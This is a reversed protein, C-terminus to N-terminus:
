TPPACRVLSIADEFPGDTITLSDGSGPGTLTLVLRGSRSPRDASGCFSNASYGAPTADPGVIDCSVGAPSQMHVATLLWPKAACDEARSAWRGVYRLPAGPAPSPPAAKSEAYISKQAPGCGQALLALAVFALSRAYM